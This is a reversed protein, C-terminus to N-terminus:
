KPTPAARAARVVEVLDLLGRATKTEELPVPLPLRWNPDEDLTGPLNPQRLEGLADALQVGVLESPQAAVYRHMALADEGGVLARIADRERADEAEQEGVPKGLVGLAARARTAEGAWFGRATPLDHTSVSALTLPDYPGPDFWLVASGYIGRERLRRPVEKPVTGLDEAIVLAGARRAEAALLGLLLDAPYRVYTGEAPGKGEPIWFLRFLGAAHDIRLGGAHRLLTRVLDRLPVTARHPLLPPLRWDQGQQNFSDPPAGVTMGKALDHQLAWADAGGPDSGVALDHVIGVRMGADRAAGQARALQEDCWFQLWRHLEVREPPASATAPDRLQAPWRQWPTGHIEALACFTAFRTLGEGERRAYEEFEKRRLRPLREWVASKARYAADRDVLAGPAPPPKGVDLGAAEPIEDLRLYLPNTFRRSSAFYPSPEQPLGPNAAHLPNCLVFDGGLEAATWTALDRLDAVDGIGWSRASRLAYLQVMWGWVRVGLTPCREATEVPEPEPPRGGETAGLADLVARVTDEPVVRREGRWDDYETAVGWTAALERLNM